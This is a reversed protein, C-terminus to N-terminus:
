SKEFAWFEGGVKGNACAAGNRGLISAVSYLAANLNVIASWYFITSPKDFPAIKLSMSRGRGGTELDRWEKAIFIDTVTRSVSM